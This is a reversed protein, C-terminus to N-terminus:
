GKVRELQTRTWELNAQKAKRTAEQSSVSASQKLPDIQLIPAGAEVHDGSKVFIRTVQGEVQPMLTVSNRSKITAVYESADEVSTERAVLVKVKTAMAAADPPAEKRGCGLSALAAAIAALVTWSLAARPLARVRWEVISQCHGASRARSAAQLPEAVKRR